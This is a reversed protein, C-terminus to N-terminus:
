PREGFPGPYVRPHGKSPIPAKRQQCEPSASAKSPPQSCLAPHLVSCTTPTGTGRCYPQRHRREPAPHSILLWLPSVLLSITHLLMGPVHGAQRRQAALLRSNPTRILLLLSYLPAHPLTSVAHLPLTLPLLLPQRYPLSSLIARPSCNNVTPAYLTSHTGLRNDAQSEPTSRREAGADFLNVLLPSSPALSTELWGRWLGWPGKQRSLWLRREVVAAHIKIEGAEAVLRLRQGRHGTRSLCVCMGYLVVTSTEISGCRRPLYCAIDM